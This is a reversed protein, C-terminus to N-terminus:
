FIISSRPAHLTHNADLTPDYKSLDSINQGPPNQQSFLQQYIGLPPIPSSLVPYPGGVQSSLNNLQVLDSISQPFYKMEILKTALTTQTAPTLSSTTSTGNTSFSSRRSTGKHMTLATHPAQARSNILGQNKSITAKTASDRAQTLFSGIVQILLTM